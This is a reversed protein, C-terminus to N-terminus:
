GPSGGDEGRGHHRGEHEHRDKGHEKDHDEHHGKQEHPHERDHDQHEPRDHHETDPRNPDELHITGDGHPPASPQPSPWLPTHPDHHPPNVDSPTGPPQPDTHPDFQPGSPPVSYTDVSHHPGLAHPADAYPESPTDAQYIVHPDYLAQNSDPPEPEAYAPPEEHVYPQHYPDGHVHFPDLEQAHSPGDVVDLVAEADHFPYDDVSM